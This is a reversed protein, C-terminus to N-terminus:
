CRNIWEIDLEKESISLEEARNNKLFKSIAELEKKEDDSFETESMYWGIKDVFDIGACDSIHLM